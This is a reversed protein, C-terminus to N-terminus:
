FYGYFGVGVIYLVVRFCVGGVLACVLAAAAYGAMGTEPKRMKLLGCVLAVLSGVIVAGGWFLLANSGAIPSVLTTTPDYAAQTPETTHFAIGVNTFQITTYYFGCIVVVVASVAGAVCALKAMLRGIEADEKCAAEVLWTGTVGLIIESSYYYLFLTFNSWAPRSGMNYSNACVFGMIIGVVLAVIAAWKPVLRGGSEGAAASKRLMVFVIVMTVLMVVVGILEQTIGSTLHMFGNFIREWHHLHLFAAFGGVVLAILEVIIMTRHFKMSGKNQLLLWGQMGIMGAALCMLLTFFVLPYQVAM